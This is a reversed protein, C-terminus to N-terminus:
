AAGLVRLSSLSLSEDSCDRLLLSTNITRVKLRARIGDTSAGKASIKGEFELKAQRAMVIDCEPRYNRGAKAALSVVSSAARSEQTTEFTNTARHRSSRQQYRSGPPSTWLVLMTMMM